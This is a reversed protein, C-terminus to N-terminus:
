LIRLLGIYFQLLDKYVYQLDITNTTSGGDGGGFFEYMIKNLRKSIGM